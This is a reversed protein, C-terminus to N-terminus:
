SMSHKELCGFSVKFSINNVIKQIMEILMIIM